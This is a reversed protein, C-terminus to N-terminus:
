KGRILKKARALLYAVAEAPTKRRISRCLNAPIYEGEPQDVMTYRTLDAQEAVYEEAIAGYTAKVRLTSLREGLLPCQIEGRFAISSCGRCPHGRMKMTARRRKVWNPLRSWGRTKWWAFSSWNARLERRYELEISTM